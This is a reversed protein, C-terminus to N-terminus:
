IIEFIEYNNNIMVKNLFQEIQVEYEKKLNIIDQEYKYKLVDIEKIEFENMKLESSTENRDSSILQSSETIQDNSVDKNEEETIDRLEDALDHIDIGSKALKRNLVKIELESKKLKVRLLNLEKNKEDLEENSLEQKSEDHSIKPKINRIENSKIELQKILGKIKDDRINIEAQSINLRETLTVIEDKADKLGKELKKRTREILARFFILDSINKTLLFIGQKNQVLVLM